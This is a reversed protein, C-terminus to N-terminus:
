LVQLNKAQSNIKHFIQLMAKKRDEPLTASNWTANSPISCKKSMDYLKNKKLITIQIQKHFTTGPM